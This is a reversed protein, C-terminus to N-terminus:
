RLCFAPKTPTLEAKQTQSSWTYTLLLNKSTSIAFGDETKLISLSYGGGPVICVISVKEIDLVVALGSYKNIRSHGLGIAVETSSLWICGIAQARLAIKLKVQATKVDILRFTRDHRGGATALLDLATPNFNMNRIASPYEMIHYPKFSTTIDWLSLKDDNGSVALQQQARNLAISCIADKHASFMSVIHLTTRSAVGNISLHFIRGISDGAILQIPCGRCNGFDKRYLNLADATNYGNKWVISTIYANTDFAKPDYKRVLANLTTYLGTEGSMREIIEIEGAKTAVALLGLKCVDIATVRVPRKMLSSHRLEVEAVQRSCTYIYSGEVRFIENLANWAAIKAYTNPRKMAVEALEPASDWSSNTAVLTSYYDERVMCDAFHYDPIGSHRSMENKIVDTLEMTSTANQSRKVPRRHLSPSWSRIFRSQIHSIPYDLQRIDNPPLAYTNEGAILSLRPASLVAKSNHLELSLRLVETSKEVDWLKRNIKFANFRNSNPSYFREM